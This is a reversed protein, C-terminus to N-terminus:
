LTPEEPDVICELLYTGDSSVLRELAPGVDKNSDIREGKFGYAKMLSVFDPNHELM